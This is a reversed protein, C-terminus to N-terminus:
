SQRDMSAALNIALDEVLLCIEHALMEFVVSKEDESLPEKAPLVFAFFAPMEDVEKSLVDAVASVERLGRVSDDGSYFYAQACNGSVGTEIGNKAVLVDEYEFDNASLVKELIERFEVAFSKSTGESSERPVLCYLAELKRLANGKGEIIDMLAKVAAGGDVVAASYEGATEGESLIDLITDKNESLHSRLCNRFTECDKGRKVLTQYSKGSYMFEALWALLPSLDGRGKAGNGEHDIRLRMYERRLTTTLWADNWQSFTLLADQRNGLKGSLPQWLGSVDSPLLYLEYSHKTEKESRREKNEGFYRMALSHLISDLLAESKVVEHHFVITKYNMLRKRLFDEVTPLAKEPMAFVYEGSGTEVIKMDEILRRYQLADTGVGSAKSDRQVYDMRDADVTGSTLAHLEKFAGEEELIALASLAAALRFRSENDQARSDRLGQSVALRSLRGGIAEHLDSTRGSRASLHSDISARFDGAASNGEFRDSGAEQYLRMLAQECAHSFPPHGIDHLLGALRIGEALYMCTAMAEKPLNSPVMFSYPLISALDFERSKCGEIFEEIHGIKMRSLENGNLTKLNSTFGQAILDKLSNSFKIAFDNLTSRDTNCLSKYFMQGALHMTGLSHEYRHVRVSPWILFATSNQYVYHLRNFLPSNAIQYEMDSLRILDHVNDAINRNGGM